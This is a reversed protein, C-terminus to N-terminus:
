CARESRQEDPFAQHLRVTVLQRVLAKPLPKDVPFHLSGKTTAYEAAKAGVETIVSGSHPLYSLHKSFAAFGAIVKGRVRFAPLGYSICEEAEPIVELISSRLRRLTSQKPEDLAALYEEVPNSTKKVPNSTKTVM